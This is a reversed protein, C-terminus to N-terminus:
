NKKGNILTYFLNDYHGRDGFNLLGVNKSFAEFFEGKFVAGNRLKLGAFHKKSDTGRTEAM